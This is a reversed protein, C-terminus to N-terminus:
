VPGMLHGMSCVWAGEDTQADNRGAFFADQRRQVHRFGSRFPEWFAVAVAAAGEQVHFPHMGRWRFDDSTHAGIALAIEGPDAEDLAHYYELVISKETAFSNM